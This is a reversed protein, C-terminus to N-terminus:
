IQLYFSFCFFITSNCLWHEGVHSLHFSDTLSLGRLHREIYLPHLQLLTLKVLQSIIYIQAALFNVKVNQM